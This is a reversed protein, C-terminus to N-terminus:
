ERSKIYRAPSGVYVGYPETSKTVISGAGIVCGDAIKVGPMIQVGYGIWVDDGIEIDKEVLGQKCILRNADLYNHSSTRIHVAYSILCNEGIRIRANPSAYIMGGNIYTGGGIFINHPCMMDVCYNLKYDSGNIQKRYYAIKAKGKLNTIWNLIRYLM